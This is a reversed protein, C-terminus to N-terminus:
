HVDQGRQRLDLIPYGVLQGPAHLTVDGGRGIERVPIGRMALEAPSAIVNTARASRGLTIVAPHQLLLLVDPIIREARANLTALQLEQAEEYPILGLNVLWSEDSMNAARGM